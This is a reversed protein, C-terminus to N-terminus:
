WPMSVTFGQCIANREDSRIQITPNTDAITTDLMRDALFSSLGPGMGTDDELASAALVTMMIEAIKRTEFEM